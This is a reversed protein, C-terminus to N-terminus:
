LWVSSETQEIELKSELNKLKNVIFQRRKRCIINEKELKGIEISSTERTLGSLTALLQHTLPTKIIIHGNKGKTGFRKALMVFTAAIKSQANGFLLTQTTSIMAELAVMTRTNLKYLLDPENKIFEIFAAKPANITEVETLAEFFYSNEIESLAWMMFLYTGPKYINFTIEKGSASISYLRVLGKKIYYIGSPNENPRLIVEGKKFSVKKGVGTFFKLDSGIDIRHLTFM